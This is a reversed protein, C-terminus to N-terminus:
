RLDRPECVDRGSLVAQAKIVKVAKVLFTRDTLLATAEDCGHDARLVQLLRLLTRKCSEPFEAVDTVRRAADIVVQRDIRDVSVSGDGGSPRPKSYLDVVDAANEWSEESILGRCRVQLTFRDLTAPDLPDGYYGEEDVPNGTAIATMLPIREGGTMDGYRREKFHKV